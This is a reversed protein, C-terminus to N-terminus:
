PLDSDLVKVVVEQTTFCQINIHSSVLGNLSFSAPPCTSMHVLKLHVWVHIIIIIILILTHRFLVWQAAIRTSELVNVKSSM